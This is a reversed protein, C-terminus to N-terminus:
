EFVCVIDRKAEGIVGDSPEATITLLGHLKQDGAGSLLVLSRDLSTEAILEM